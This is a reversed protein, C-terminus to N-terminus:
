FLWDKNKVKRNVWTENNCKEHVLQVTKRPTQSLTSM